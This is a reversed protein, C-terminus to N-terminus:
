GTGIAVAAQSPLWTLFGRMEQDTVKSIDPKPIGRQVAIVQSVVDASAIALKEGADARLFPALCERLIKRVTDHQMLDSVALKAGKSVSLGAYVKRLRADADTCVHQRVYAAMGLFFQRVWVDGFRNVQMTFATRAAKQLATMLLTALLTENSFPALAAGGSAEMCRENSQEFFQFAGPLGQFFQVRATELDATTLQGGAAQCRSLLHKFILEATPVDVAACHHPGRLLAPASM